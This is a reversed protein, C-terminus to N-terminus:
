SLKMELEQLYDYQMDEHMTSIAKRIAAVQRDYLNHMVTSRTYSLPMSKMEVCFHMLIEVETAKQKSFRIQKKALRLIKRISKKAYYWSQFNIESFQLTIEECVGKIYQEEDRAEFLLYTLLEKSEKKYKAMTLCVEILEKESLYKLENKIDTIRAPKM